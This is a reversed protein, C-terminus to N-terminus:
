EKCRFSAVRLRWRGGLGALEPLAIPQALNKLREGSATNRTKSSAPLRSHSARALPRNRSKFSGQANRAHCWRYLCARAIMNPRRVLRQRAQRVEGTGYSSVDLHQLLHSLNTCSVRNSGFFVKRRVRLSDNPLLIIFSFNRKIPRSQTGSLKLVRTSRLIRSRRRFSRRSASCRVVLCWSGALFEHM